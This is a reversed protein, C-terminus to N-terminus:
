HKPDSLSSDLPSPADGAVALSTQVFHQMVHELMPAIEDVQVVILDGPRVVEFARDVAKLGDMVIEINEELHGSEVAGAKVLSPSEGHPRNRRDVEAVIIYDYVESLASKRSRPDL